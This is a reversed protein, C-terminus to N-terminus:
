VDCRAIVWRGTGERGCVLVEGERGKGGRLKINLDNDGVWLHWGFVIVDRM